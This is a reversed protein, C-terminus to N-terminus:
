IFHHLSHFIVTQDATKYIANPHITKGSIMTPLLETQVYALMSLPSAVPDQTNNSGIGPM